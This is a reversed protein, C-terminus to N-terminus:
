PTPKPRRSRFWRVCGPVLAAIVVLWCAYSLPTAGFLVANVVFGVIAIAAIVLELPKVM